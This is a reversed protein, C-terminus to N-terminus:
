ISRMANAPHGIHIGHRALAQGGGAEWSGGAQGGAPVRLQQAAHSLGQRFFGDGQLHIHQKAWARIHFARRQTPAVKFIKRLIREQGALHRSRQDLTDLALTDACGKFVKGGVVLLVAAEGNVRFYILAAQSLYIQWGEFRGNLLGLGPRHHAGVVFEITRVTGFVMLQQCADELILPAEFPQHNRIPAGNVIPGPRQLAAYIKLHGTGFWLPSFFHHLRNARALQFLSNQIFGDAPDQRDDEFGGLSGLAPTEVHFGVVGQRGLDRRLAHHQQFVVADQRELIGLM